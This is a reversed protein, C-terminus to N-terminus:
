LRWVNGFTVQPWVQGSNLIVSYIKPLNYLCRNYITVRHYLLCYTIHDLTLLTVKHLM